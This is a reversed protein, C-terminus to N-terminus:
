KLIFADTGPYEIDNINYYDWTLVEMDGHEAILDQLTRIIKSAKM